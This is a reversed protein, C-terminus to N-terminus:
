CLGEPLSVYLINKKIDADTVFDDAAPILTGNDLVWLKNLTTNDVEVIRGLEGKKEDVLLFGIIASKGTDNLVEEPLSSRLVFAETGCLCQAQREEHIGELCVILSDEGRFRFLEVFFPVLINDCLLIIFESNSLQFLDNELSCLLEGGTGYTKRVVGIKIVDDFSIM